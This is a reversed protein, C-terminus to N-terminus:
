KTHHKYSKYAHNAGDIMGFVGAIAHKVGWGIVHQAVATANEVKQERKTQATKPDPIIVMQNAM